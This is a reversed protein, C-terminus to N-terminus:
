EIVRCLSLKGDSSSVLMFSGALAMMGLSVASNQSILCTGVKSLVNASSRSISHILRLDSDMAYLCTAQSNYVLQDASVDLMQPTVATITGVPLSSHNVVFNEIKGNSATVCNDAGLAIGQPATTTAGIRRYSAICNDGPFSEALVINCSDAGTMAFINGSPSVALKSTTSFDIPYSNMGKLVPGGSSMDFCLIKRDRVTNLLCNNVVVYATNRSSLLLARTQNLTFDMGSLTFSGEIRGFQGPCLSLSGTQQNFKLFTVNETGGRDDMMLVWPLVEGSEVIKINGIFNFDSSDYVSILDLCNGVVKMVAIKQASPSVVLFRGAPLPSIIADSGLNLYTCQSGNKGILLTSFESLKCLSGPAGEILATFAASVCGYSGLFSNSVVADVRHYGPAINITKSNTKGLVESAGIAVGDVFWQIRLEPASEFEEDLKFNLVKDSNAGLVYNSDSDLQFGSLAGKVPIGARNNLLFYGSSDAFSMQSISVSGSTTQGGVIRLSEVFGGVHFDGSKLVGRIIYSGAALEKSISACRNPYDSQFSIENENGGQAQLYVYLHPDPVETNQWDIQMSLTGNGVMEDLTIQATGSNQTLEYDISGRILAIGAPNMGTVVVHWDGVKLGNITVASSDTSVEFTANDPGTGAIRFRTVQLSAVDNPALTKVGINNNRILLKMTATGREESCSVVSIAALAAVMLFSIMLSKKM